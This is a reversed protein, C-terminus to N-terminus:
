TPDRAGPKSVKFLIALRELSVCYGTFHECLAEAKLIKRLAVSYSTRISLLFNVLWAIMRCPIVLM